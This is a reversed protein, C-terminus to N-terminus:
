EQDNADLDKGGTVVRLQPRSKPSEDAISQEDEEFSEQDFEEPPFAMGQNNEQAYIIMVAAIPIYLNRSVGGFRAKFELTNNSIVLGSTSEPSIDLVIRGDEVYEKPVITGPIYADVTIYPTLNNDNIWEYIARILYPKSSTM